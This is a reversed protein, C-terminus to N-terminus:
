RAQPVEAIGSGALSPLRMGAQEGPGRAVAPLRNEQEDVAAGFELGPRGVVRQELAQEGAADGDERGVDAAQDAVTM